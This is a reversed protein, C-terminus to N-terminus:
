ISKGKALITGKETAQHNRHNIVHPQNIVPMIEPNADAATHVDDELREETDKLSVKKKHLEKTVIIVVYKIKQERDKYKQLSLLLQSHDSVDVIGMCEQLVDKFVNLSPDVINVANRITTSMLGHHSTLTTSVNTGDRLTGPIKLVLGQVDCASGRRINWKWVDNEKKHCNHTWFFIPEGKSRHDRVILSGDEAKSLGYMKICNIM